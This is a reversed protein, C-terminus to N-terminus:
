RNKVALIENKKKFLIDHYKTLSLMDIWLIQYLNIRIHFKVTKYSGFRNSKCSIFWRLVMECFYRVYGFFNMLMPWTSGSGISFLCECVCVCVCLCVGFPKIYSLKHTIWKKSQYESLAYELTYFVIFCLSKPKIKNQLYNAM